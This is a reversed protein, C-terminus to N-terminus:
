SPLSRFSKLCTPIALCVRVPAGRAMSLPYQASCCGGQPWIDENIHCWQPSFIRGSLALAPVASWTHAAMCQLAHFSIKASLLKRAGKHPCRHANTYTHTHILVTDTHM